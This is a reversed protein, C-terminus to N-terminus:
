ALSLHRAGRRPRVRGSDGRPRHRAVDGLDTDREVTWSLLRAYGVVRARDGATDGSQASRARRSSGAGGCACGTSPHPAADQRSRIRSLASTDAARSRHARTPMRMTTRCVSSVVILTEPGGVVCRARCGIDRRTAVALPVLTFTDLVSQLVAAAGRARMSPPTRATTSSSQTLTAARQLRRRRAVEGAIALHAGTARRAACRCGTRRGWCSSVPSSAACRARTRAAAVPGSYVYGPMHVIVGPAASANASRGLPAGAGGPPSTRPHLQRRRCRSARRM